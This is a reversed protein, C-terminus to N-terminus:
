DVLHTFNTLQLSTCRVTANIGKYGNIKNGLSSSSTQFDLAQALDVVKVETEVTPELVVVGCLGWEEEVVGM